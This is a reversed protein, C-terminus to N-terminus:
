RCELEWAKRAKPDAPPAQKCPSVPPPPAQASMQQKKPWLLGPLRSEIPAYLALCLGTLCALTVGSALLPMGPLLRRMLAEILCGACAAGLAGSLMGAFAWFVAFFLPAATDSNLGPQRFYLHFGIAAAIWMGPWPWLLRALWVASPKDRREASARLNSEGASM